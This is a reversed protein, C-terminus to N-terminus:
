WRAQDLGRLAEVLDAAPYGRRSLESQLKKLARQEIRQVMRSPLGLAEGVDSLSADCDKNIFRPKDM